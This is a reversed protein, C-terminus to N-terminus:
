FDVSVHNSWYRLLLITVDCYYSKVLVLHVHNIEVLLLSFLKVKFFKYFIYQVLPDQNLKFFFFPTESKNISAHLIHEIPKSPSLLQQFIFFFKTLSFSKKLVLFPFAM